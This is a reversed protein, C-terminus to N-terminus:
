SWYQNSCQTMSKLFESWVGVDVQCKLVRTLVRDFHIMYASVQKNLKPCQLLNFILEMAETHKEPGVMQVFLESVHLDSRNLLSSLIKHTVPPHTTEHYITQRDHCLAM